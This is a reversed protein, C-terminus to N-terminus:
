TKIRKLIELGTVSNTTILDIYRIKSFRITGSDLKIFVRKLLLNKGDDEIFLHYMNDNASRKLYLPIDKFAVLRIEYEENGIPKTQIGFTCEERLQVPKTTKRNQDLTIWFGKIPHEPHLKGANNFNLKYVLTNANSNSQLFFLINGDKRTELSDPDVSLQAYALQNLILLVTLIMVLLTVIRKGIANTSQIQQLKNKVPQRYTKSSSSFMFFLLERFGDTHKIDQLLNRHDQFNM